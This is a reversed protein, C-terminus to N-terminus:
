PVKRPMGVRRHNKVRNPRTGKQKEVALRPNKRRKKRELWRIMDIVCRANNCFLIYVRM